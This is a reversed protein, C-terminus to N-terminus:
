WVQRIFDQRLHMRAVFQEGEGTLDKLQTTSTFNRYNTFMKRKGKQRRKSVMEWTSKSKQM